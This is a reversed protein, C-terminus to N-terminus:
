SGSSRQIKITDIERVRYFVPIAKVPLVGGRHIM